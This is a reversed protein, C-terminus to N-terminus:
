ESFYIMKIMSLLIFVPNSIIKGFVVGNWATDLIESFSERVTPMELMDDDDSILSVDETTDTIDDNNVPKGRHVYTTTDNGNRLPEASALMLTSILLICGLWFIENMTNVLSRNVLINCYLM